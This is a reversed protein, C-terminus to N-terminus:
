TPGLVFNYKSFPYTISNKLPQNNFFIKLSIYCILKERIAAHQM